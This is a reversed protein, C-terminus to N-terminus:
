SNKKFKYTFYLGTFNVGMMVVNLFIFVYNKLNYSYLVLGLGSLLQGVYLAYSVDDASRHHIQKKIQSIMTFVLILSALWGLIDNFGM